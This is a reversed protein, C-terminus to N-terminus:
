RWRSRLGRLLRQTRRRRMERVTRKSWEAGTEAAEAGATSLAPLGRKRLAEELTRVESLTVLYARGTQMPIVGIEALRRKLTRPQIHLNKAVERLTFKPELESM